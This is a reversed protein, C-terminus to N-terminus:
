FQGTCPGSCSSGFPDPKRQLISWTVEPPCRWGVHNDSRVKSGTETTGFFEHRQRVRDEVALSGSTLYVTIFIVIYMNFNMVMSM